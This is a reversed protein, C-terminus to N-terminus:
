RIRRYIQIWENGLPAGNLTTSGFGGYITPPQLGQIPPQVQIIELTLVSDARFIGKLTVIEPSSQYLIIQKIGSLSNSDITQFTGTYTTSVKDSDKANISYTNNDIFDAHIKIFRYPAKRLAPAIDNEISMWLNETLANRPLPIASVTDSKRGEGYSNVASVSYYYTYYATLTTDTINTTNANVENILIMNGNPNRRYLRYHTIPSFGESYPIMWSLSVSNLGATIQVNRPESPSFNTMAPRVYIQNSREGEGNNNVATVYYYYATGNTLNSDNISFTNFSVTAILAGNGPSLSRYIRFETIDSGGNYSPSQWRLYAIKDGPAVSLNQPPSPVSLTSEILVEYDSCNFLVISFLFIILLFLKEM